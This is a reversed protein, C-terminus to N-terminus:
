YSYTFIHLLLLQTLLGLILQRKEDARVDPNGTTPPITEPGWLTGRLEMLDLVRFGLRHLGM